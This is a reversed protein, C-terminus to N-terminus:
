IIIMDNVTEKRIRVQPFVEGTPRKKIKKYFLTSLNNNKHYFQRRSLSRRASNKLKTLNKENKENLIEFKTWKQWNGFPKKYINALFRRSLPGWAGNERFTLCFILFFQVIKLYFKQAIKGFIYRNLVEGRQLTVSWRTLANCKVTSFDRQGNAIKGIHARNRTTQDGM